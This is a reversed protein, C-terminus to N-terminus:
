KKRLYVNDHTSSLDLETGGGNLTASLNDSYRVMSGSNNFDLKLAPDVFIEGWSTSMRLNAKTTAPLSVDVHGHTSSIRVASKPESAFTVDVDGHVTKVDVQGSVNDLRMDNHVSTAKLESEINRFVVDSGHPSTHSYYISIGKPVKITVDPGDMKKLQRVEIVGGNEIVSLGLGTNDELGLSSVARLGQARGDRERSRDLSTFVIESGQYGEIKVRNVEKIELKGSSKALKFEQANSILCAGAIGITLLIKKMKYKQNPM